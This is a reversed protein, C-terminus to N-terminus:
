SRWAGDRALILLGDREAVEAKLRAIEADRADPSAEPLRALVADALATLRAPVLHQGQPTKRLAAELEPRTCTWRTVGADVSLGSIPHADDPETFGEAQMDLPQDPM